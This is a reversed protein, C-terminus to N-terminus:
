VDTFFMNYNEDYETMADKYTKGLYTNLCYELYYGEPYTEDLKHFDEMLYCLTGCSEFPKKSDLNDKWVPLDWESLMSFTGDVCEYDAGFGQEEEWFYTFNPIEKALLEFINIDPAGWPTQFRYNVYDGDSEVDHESADWKVGWNQARWDYWNECGHHKILLQSLEYKYPNDEKSPTPSTTDGYAEPQPKFYQCIGKEAIQEIKETYKKEVSINNYVWNPM